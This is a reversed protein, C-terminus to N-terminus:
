EGNFVRKVTVPRDGGPSGKGGEICFGLGADPCKQVEVEILEFRSKDSTTQVAGTSSDEVVSLRTDPRDKSENDTKTLEKSDNSLDHKDLGADPCKQVGVETLEPTTGLSGNSSDEAAPLLTDPRDKAENDTKTLEKLDDSFDHKGLGADPHKQDGVETSEYSLESLTHVSDALSDEFAPWFADSKSNRNDDNKSTGKSDDSFDYKSSLGTDPSKQFEIEILESYSKNSTTKVPGKFSDDFDSWFNDTEDKSKTDKSKLEKLDDSFDHTGNTTLVNIESIANGNFAKGLEEHLGPRESELNKNEDVKEDLLMGTETHALYSHGFEPFTTLETTVPKHQQSKELGNKDIIDHSNSPSASYSDSFDILISSEPGTPFVLRHEKDENSRTEENGDAHLETIWSEEAARPKESNTQSATKITENIDNEIRDTKTTVEQHNTVLYDINPKEDDDGKLGHGMRSQKTDIDEDLDGETSPLSFVDDDNDHKKWNGNMKADLNLTEKFGVDAATDKTQTKHTSLPNFTPPEKPLHSDDKAMVFKARLTTDPDNKHKNDNNVNKYKDLSFRHESLYESKFEEGNGDSSSSSRVSGRYSGILSGISHRRTLRSPQEPSEPETTLALVSRYHAKRPPNKPLAVRKVPAKAIVPMNTSVTNRSPLVTTHLMKLRNKLGERQKKEVVEVVSPQRLFPTPIPRRYTSSASFDNVSTSRM